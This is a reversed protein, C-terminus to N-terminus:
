ARDSIVTFPGRVGASYHSAIELATEVQYQQWYGSAVNSRRTDMYFEANINALARLAGLAYSQGCGCAARGDAAEIVQYEDEIAFLRGRIGVLFTGATEVEHEKKAYGGAKLCARVADVFKTIMYGYLDDGEIPPPALNYQLLQGMRFSTTYGMLFEGVKFVKPQAVVTMDLGAVGASDGGMWIHGEDDRLAVICTM